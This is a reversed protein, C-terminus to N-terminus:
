KGGPLPKITSNEISKHQKKAKKTLEEEGPFKEVSARPRM